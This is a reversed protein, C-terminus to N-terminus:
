SFRPCVSWLFGWAECLMRPSPWQADRNLGQLGQLIQKVFGPARAYSLQGQVWGGAGARRSHDLLLRAEIEMLASQSDM